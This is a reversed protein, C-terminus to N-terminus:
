HEGKYEPHERLVPMQNVIWRYILIQITVIAVVILFERWNLFERNPLQWNLAFLSVNLRNLMIGVITLIATFQVM